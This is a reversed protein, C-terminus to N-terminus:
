TLKKARDALVSLRRDLYERMQRESRRNMWEGRQEPTMPELEKFEAETLFLWPENRIEEMTMDEIRKMQKTEAHM